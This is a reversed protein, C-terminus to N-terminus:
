AAAVELVVDDVAAQRRGRAVQRARVRDLAAVGTVALLIVSHLACLGVSIFTAVHDGVASLGVVIATVNFAVLVLQPLMVEVASPVAVSANTSMWVARRRLLVAFFAQLHVPVTAVSLVIPRWRFGGCQLALVVHTLVLFPLYAALWHPADTDLPAVGFLLFLPPLLLYFANAFATLYNLPPAAYALRQGATLGNIVMPNSRM